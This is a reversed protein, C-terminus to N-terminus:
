TCVTTDEITTQTAFPQNKMLTSASIKQYPAWGLMRSLPFLRKYSVVMTYTAIASAGGPGSTGPDADWSGNGNVDTFCEGPDRVGNGNGDTFVEPAVESFSDYSKRDSCWAAASAAAAKTCDKQLGKAVAGLASIVKGDIAPINAAGGEIGSDRAAKQVEGSLVSQVYEQYLLESLGMLLLMVMPIILAFEIVTAGRRDTVVRPLRPM